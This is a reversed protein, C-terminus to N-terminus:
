PAGTGPPLNDTEQAQAPHAKGSNADLVGSTVHIMTLEASWAGGIRRGRGTITAITKTALMDVVVAVIADMTVGSEGVAAPPTM